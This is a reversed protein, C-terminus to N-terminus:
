NKRNPKGFAPEVEDKKIRAAPNGRESLNQEETGDGIMGPHSVDSRKSSGKPATAKNPVSPKNTMISAESRPRARRFEPLAVKTGSKRCRVREAGAQDVLGQCIM